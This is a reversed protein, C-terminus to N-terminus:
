KVLCYMVRECAPGDVVSNTKKINFKTVHMGTRRATPANLHTTSLTRNFQHQYYEIRIAQIMEVAKCRVSRSNFTPFLILHCSENPPPLYVFDLKGIYPEINKSFTM